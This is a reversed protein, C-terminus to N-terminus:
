TSMSVNRAVKYDDGVCTPRPVNRRLQSTWEYKAAQCAAVEGLRELCWRPFPMWIAAIIM